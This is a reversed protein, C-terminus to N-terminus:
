LLLKCLHSRFFEVKKLAADRRKWTRTGSEDGYKCVQRQILDAMTQGGKPYKLDFCFCLHFFAGIGQLITLNGLLKSQDVWLEFIIANEVKVALLHPSSSEGDWSDSELRILPTDTSGDFYESALRLLHIDKFTSSGSYDIAGVMEANQLGQKTELSKDVDLMFVEVYGIFKTFHEQINEDLPKTDTMYHFHSALHRPDLFFPKCIRSINAKSERFENCLDERHEEFVAERTNYDRENELRHLVAITQGSVKKKKYWKNMTVGYVITQKAKKVPPAEEGEQSQSPPNDRRNKERYRDCFKSAQLDLKEVGRKESTEERPSFMEPYRSVLHVLLDRVAAKGPKGRGFIEQLKCVLNFLIENKVRKFERECKIDENKIVAEKTKTSCAFIVEQDFNKILRPLWDPNQHVSGVDPVSSKETISREPLCEETNKEEEPSSSKETLCEGRERERYERPTSHASSMESITENIVESDDVDKKFDQWGDILGLETYGEVSAGLCKSFTLRFEKKKRSTVTTSHPLEKDKKLLYKLRV